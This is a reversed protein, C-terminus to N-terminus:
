YISKLKKKPKLTRISKVLQKHQKLYIPFYTKIKKEVNSLDSLVKAQKNNFAQIDDNESQKMKLWLLILFGGVDWYTMLNLRRSINHALTFCKKFFRKGQNWNYITESHFCWAALTISIYFAIDDVLSSAWKESWQSTFENSKIIYDKESVEACNCMILSTLGCFYLAHVTLSGNEVIMNHIKLLASCCDSYRKGHWYIQFQYLYIDPVCTQVNVYKLIRFVDASIREARVLQSRVLNGKILTIYAREINKIELLDIQVFNRLRQHCMRLINTELENVNATPNLHCKCQYLLIRNSLVQSFDIPFADLAIHEIKVLEMALSYKYAMYYTKTLVGLLKTIAEAHLSPFKPLIHKFDNCNFAGHFCVPNLGLLNLAKFALSSAYYTDGLLLFSEAEAKKLSAKLVVPDFQCQDEVTSSHSSSYMGPFISEAFEAFHLAQIPYNIDNSAQAAKKIFYVRLLKAGVSDYIAALRTYLTTRRQLCTCHKSDAYIPLCRMDKMANEMKTDEARARKCSICILGNTELEYALELHMSRLQDKTMYNLICLRFIDTYFKLRHYPGIVRSSSSGNRLVSKTSVKKCFCIISCELKESPKQLMQKNFVYESICACSLIHKSTLSNLSKLVEEKTLGLSVAELTHQDFDYGLVAARKLLLREQMNLDNLRENVADNVNSPVSVEKLSSLSKLDCAFIDNSKDDSDQFESLVFEKRIREEDLSNFPILDAMQLLIPSLLVERLLQTNGDTKEKLFGVIEKHVAKVGLYWCILAPFYERGSLELNIHTYAKLYLVGALISPEKFNYCLSLLILVNEEEALQRILLWSYEDMFEAGNIALLMQFGTCFEKFIDKFLGIIQKNRLTKDVNVTKSPPFQVHFLHNLLYLPANSCGPLFNLIIQEREFIGENLTMDLMHFALCTITSFPEDAHSPITCCSVTKYDMSAAAGVTYYMLYENGCDGEIIIVPLLTKERMDARKDEDTMVSLCEKIRKKGVEAEKEDEEDLKEFVSRRMKMEKNKVRYAYIAETREIGKMKRSPMEVFSAHGLDDRSLHYTDTDMVVPEDKYVTMIRSALNVRSGLVTYEKRQPHGVLGCFCTGSAIGVSVNINLNVLEDVANNACLIGRAADNSHKMGPLGFAILFTCGKDFLQLKNLVGGQKKVCELIIDFARDLLLPEEVRVNLLSIFITTVMALESLYNLEIETRVDRVPPILFTRAMAIHQKDCQQFNLIRNPVFKKSVAEDFDSILTFEETLYKSNYTNAKEAQLCAFVQKSVTIQGASTLSEAENVQPLAPGAVAYLLFESPSGLVWTNIKGCAIGIKVRLTGSLNKEQLSEHTQLALACNYAKVVTGRLNRDEGVEWQCLFADGAFSLIDGGASILMSTLTSMYGNLISALAEVGSIGKQCYSEALRTFGCVDALLLVVNSEIQYPLSRFSDNLIEELIIDPVFTLPLYKAEITASQIAATQEDTVRTMQDLNEVAEQVSKRRDKSESHDSNGLCCWSKVWASSFELTAVRSHM